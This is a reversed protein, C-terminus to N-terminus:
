SLQFSHYKQFLVLNQLESKNQVKFEQGKRCYDFTLDFYNLRKFTSLINFIINNTEENPENVTLRLERLTKSLNSSILDKLIDRTCIETLSLATLNPFKLEIFQFLNSKIDKFHRMAINFYELKPFIPILELNLGKPHFLSEESPLYIYFGLELAKLTKSNKELLNTLQQESSLHIQDLRLHEIQFNNLLPQVADMTRM